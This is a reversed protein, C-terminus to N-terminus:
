IINLFLSLFFRGDEKQQKEKLLVSIRIRSDQFFNLLSRRVALLEFNNMTFYTNRLLKYAYDIQAQVNPSCQVYRLFNM